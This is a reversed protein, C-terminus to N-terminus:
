AAGSRRSFGRRLAVRLVPLLLALGAVLPAAGEEASGCAGPCGEDVAGDCDNDRGDCHLPPGDPSGPHIAPDHDYCDDGGCVVAEYGDGDEDWCITASFIEWDGGDFGQWVIRPGDLEPARDDFLNDTIQRTRGNWSYAFIEYDSGDHGEWVVGDGSIGTVIDWTENDTIQLVSKGDFLYAEYDNGDSRSWAARDGHVYPPYARYPDDTLQRLSSSDFFFIEWDEGDWGRWAVRGGHIDPFDNDGTGQSIRAGEGGSYLYIQSGNHGDGGGYWVLRGEYLRPRRDVLDDETIRVTSAGNYLFLDKFPGEGGIWAVSSSDLHASLDDHDNDTLRTVSRGDYLYIESDGDGPEHKEWVVRGHCVEPYLDDLEDHTLRVPAAGGSSGRSLYIDYAGAAGGAWAIWDGHIAPFEDDMENDTIRVIGRTTVAGAESFCVLIILATLILRFHKMTGGKLPNPPLARREPNARHTGTSRGPASTIVFFQIDCLYRRNHRFPGPSLFAVRHSAANVAPAPCFM